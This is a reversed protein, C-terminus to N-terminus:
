FSNQLLFIVIYIIQYSITITVISKAYFNKM